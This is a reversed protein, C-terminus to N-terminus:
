CFGQLLAVAAGGLGDYTAVRARSSGGGTAMAPSPSPPWPLAIRPTAEPLAPGLFMITRPPACPMWGPFHLTVERQLRHLHAIGAEGPLFDQCRTPAWPVSLLRSRTIPATITGIRTFRANSDIFKGRRRRPVRFFPSAAEARPRGVEDSSSASLDVDGVRRECRLACRLADNDAAFCIVDCCIEGPARLPAM